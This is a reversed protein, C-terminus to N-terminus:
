PGAACPRFFSTIGAAKATTGPYPTWTGNRITGDTDMTVGLAMATGWRNKAM